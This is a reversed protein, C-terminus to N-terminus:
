CLSKRFSSRCILVHDRHESRISIESRWYDALNEVLKDSNLYFARLM